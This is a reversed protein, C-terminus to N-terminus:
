GDGSAGALSSLGDVRLGRSRLGRLRWLQLDKICAAPAGSGPSRRRRRMSRRPAASRPRIPTPTGTVRAAAPAAAASAASATGMRPTGAPAASTAARCVGSAAATPLFASSPTSSAAFATMSWQSPAVGGPHASMSLSSAVSFSRSLQGRALQRVEGLDTLVARGEFHGVDLEFFGADAVQALKRLSRRFAVCRDLSQEDRARVEREAPRGGEVPGPLETQASPPVLDGLSAGLSGRQDSVHTDGRRGLWGVQDREAGGA